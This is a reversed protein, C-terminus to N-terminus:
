GVRDLLDDASIRRELGESEGLEGIYREFPERPILVAKGAFFKPCGPLVHERFAGESLGLMSAAEDIRLATRSWLPPSNASKRPM